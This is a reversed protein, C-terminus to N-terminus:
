LKPKRTFRNETGARLRAINARHRWVALLGIALAFIFYAVPRTNSLLFTQIGVTIPLSVAALISAVSVYRTVAFALLWTVFAFLLAWPLLGGLVGASTAIGKGGKFKLWVPFNHGLIAAVGCLIPVLGESEGFFHKGLLVPVLGKLVDFVFVAFGLGKGCIRFVNTTGINGSGEKRIDVGKLKGALLGFPVSGILYALLLLIAPQDIM